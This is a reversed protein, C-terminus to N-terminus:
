SSSSFDSSMSSSVSNSWSSSVVEEDPWLCWTESNASNLSFNCKVSLCSLSTTLSSFLLSAFLFSPLFVSEIMPGTSSANTSTFLISLQMLLSLRSSTVWSPISPNNSLIAPGQTLSNPLLDLRPWSNPQLSFPKAIINANAVAPHIAKSLVIFYSEMSISSLQRIYWARWM